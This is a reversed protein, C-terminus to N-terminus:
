LAGDINVDMINVLETVSTLAEHLVAHQFSLHQNIQWTYLSVVLVLTHLFVKWEANLTVWQTIM